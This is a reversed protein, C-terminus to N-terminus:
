SLHPYLIEGALRLIPLPMCRFLPRFDAASHDIQRVFTRRVFDYKYYEIREERAGFGLKFRRLGENALSTRGLHLTDFGNDAYRKIVEWFLTNNPRLGQFAYDSAGFKYFAKRGHHFFVGAALPKDKWRATAVFGHDKELVCRVVNEFFRLPQPPLGHRRRTV